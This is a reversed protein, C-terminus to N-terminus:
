FIDLIFSLSLFKLAVASSVASEGLIGRAAGMAARLKLKELRGGQGAVGLDAARSEGCHLAALESGSCTRLM